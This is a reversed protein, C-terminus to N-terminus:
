LLHGADALPGLHHQQGGDDAGAPATAISPRATPRSRSQGPRAAAQSAKLTAITPRPAALPTLPALEMVAGTSSGTAGSTPTGNVVTVDTIDGSGIAPKNAIRSWDVFGTDDIVITTGVKYAM